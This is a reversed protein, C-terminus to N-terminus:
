RRPRAMSVSEGYIACVAALEVLPDETEVVVIRGLAVYPVWAQADAQSPVLLRHFRGVWWPLPRPGCLPTFVVPRRSRQFGPRSGFVHILEAHRPAVVEVGAALRRLRPHEPPGILAVRM